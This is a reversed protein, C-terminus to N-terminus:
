AGQAYTHRVLEDMALDNTWHETDGNPAVFWFAKVFGFGEVHVVIQPGSPSSRSRNAAPAASTSAATRGYRPRSSGATAASSQATQGPLPVTPYWSPSQFM